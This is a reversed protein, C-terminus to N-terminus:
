FESMYSLVGKVVGEVVLSDDEIIIDTYSPNLSRLKVLNEEKILKKIFVEGQYACAILANTDAEQCKQFIVISGDPIKPEMSNGRARLLFASAPPFGILTAAIPIRELPTGDLITGNPGCKAMGYLNLYCVQSETDTVVQYDAPNAPNRKIYGKKELQQIHFHVLSPSSLDLESQLERITLSEGTGNQLINLLKQQTPHLRKM